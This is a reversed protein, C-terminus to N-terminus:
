NYKFKKRAKKPATGRVAVQAVTKGDKRGEEQRGDCLAAAFLCVASCVRSDSCAEISQEMDTPVLPPPINQVAPAVVLSAASTKVTLTGSIADDGDNIVDCCTQQLLIDATSFSEAARCMAEVDQLGTVKKRFILWQEFCSLHVSKAFEAGDVHAAAIVADKISGRHVLDETATKASPLSKQAYALRQMHLTNTKTSACMEVQLLMNRYDGHSKQAVALADFYPLQMGMKQVAKQLAKTAVPISLPMQEVIVAGPVTLLPRLRPDESDDICCCVRYEGQKDSKCCKLLIALGTIEEVLRHADDFFVISDECLGKRLAAEVNAASRSESGGCRVLKIGREAEEVDISCTKGVGNVASHVVLLCCGSRENQLATDFWKEIEPNRGHIEERTRPKLRDAWSGLGEEEEEPPPAVEFYGHWNVRAFAAM